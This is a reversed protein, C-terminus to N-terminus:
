CNTRHQPLLGRSFGKLSRQRNHFQGNILNHVSFCATVRDKRGLAPSCRPVFVCAPYTLGLGRGKRPRAGHQPRAPTQQQPAVRPSTCREQTALTPLPHRYAAGTTSPRHLVKRLSSTPSGSCGRPRPAAASKPLTQREEQKAQPPLLTDAPKQGKLFGGKRKWQFWPLKVRALCLICAEICM